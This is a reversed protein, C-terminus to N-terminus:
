PKNLNHYSARQGTWLVPLNHPILSCCQSGMPVWLCKKSAWYASCYTNNVAFEERVSPKHLRCTLHTLTSFFVFSIKDKNYKSWCFLYSNLFLFALYKYVTSRRTTSIKIAVYFLDKCKTYYLQSGYHLANFLDLEVCARSCYWCAVDITHNPVTEEEISIGNRSSNGM